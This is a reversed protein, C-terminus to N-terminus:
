AALALRAVHRARLVVYGRAFAASSIADVRRALRHSPAEVFRFFAFALGLSAPIGILAVLPWNADGFLYVLAVFMPLHTLYLSFSIRGLWQPVPASLGRDVPGFTIACVVVGLAGLPTLSGIADSIPTGASLIPRLMWSAVIACLSTGFLAWGLARAHPRRRTREAWGLVADLNVALLTGLFFVPLYLLADVHLLKGAITLGFCLIVAPVWFRRLALAALLFLPLTLSFIIEWRLSWLVSNSSFSNRM